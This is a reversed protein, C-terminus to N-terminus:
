PQRRSKILLAAAVLPYMGDVLAAELNQRGNLDFGVFVLSGLAAAAVLVLAGRRPKWLLLGAAGLLLAHAVM